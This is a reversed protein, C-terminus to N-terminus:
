SSCCLDGTFPLYHSEYTTYTRFETSKLSTPLRIIKFTDSEERACPQANCRDHGAITDHHATSNIPVRSEVTVNSGRTIRADGERM